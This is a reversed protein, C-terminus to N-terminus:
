QFSHKQLLSKQSFMCSDLSTAFLKLACKWSYCCSTFSEWKVMLSTENRIRITKHCVHSAKQCWRGGPLMLEETEVTTEVLSVHDEFDNSHAEMYRLRIINLSYPRSCWSHLCNPLYIMQDRSYFLFEFTVACFLFSEGRSASCFEILLRATAAGCSPKRGMVKRVKSLLRSIQTNDEIFGWLGVYIAVLRHPMGAFLRQQRRRAETSKHFRM